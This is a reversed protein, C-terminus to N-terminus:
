TQELVERLEVYGSFWTYGPTYWPYMTCGGGFEPRICKIIKAHAILPITLKGEEVITISCPKFDTDCKVRDVRWQEEFAEILVEAEPTATRARDAIIEKIREKFRWKCLPKCFVIDVDLFLFETRERKRKIKGRKVREERWIKRVKYYIPEEIGMEVLISEIDPRGKLIETVDPSGRPKCLYLIGMWRPPIREGMKPDRTEPIYLNLERLFNEMRRYRYGFYAEVATRRFLGKEVGLKYVELARGLNYDTPALTVAYRRVQPAEEIPQLYYRRAWELIEEFGM